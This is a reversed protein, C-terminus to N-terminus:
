SNSPHSSYAPALFAFSSIGPKRHLAVGRQSTFVVALSAALRKPNAGRLRPGACAIPMAIRTLRSRLVPSGFAESDPTVLSRTKEQASFHGAAEQLWGLLCLCM